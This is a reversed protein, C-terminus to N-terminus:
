PVALEEDGTRISRSVLVPMAAKVPCFQDKDEYTAIKFPLGLLTSIARNSLVDPPATTAPVLIAKAIVGFVFRKLYIWDVKVTPPAVM